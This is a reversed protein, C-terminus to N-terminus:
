HCGFSAAQRAQGKVVKRVILTMREVRAIEVSDGLSIQDASFADWIEGKYSIKATKEGIQIVKGVGGIMGEIGTSVPMRLAKWIL